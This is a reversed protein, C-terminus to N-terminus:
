FGRGRGGGRGGGAGRGRGGGGGAEAGDEFRRKFGRGTGKAAGERTAQKQESERQRYSNIKDWRRKQNDAFQQEDDGASFGGPRNAQLDPLETAVSFKVGKWTEAKIVQDVMAQPVDFIASYGDCALQMAKAATAVEDSVNKRLLYWAKSTSEIVQESKLQIAVCGLYCTLLSRHKIQATYGTMAALCASLLFVPSGREALMEEAVKAFADVNDQHIHDVQRVADRAAQAVVESPQPPGRRKLTIGKKRQLMRLLYEENRTYFVCCTGSRGGRATRGSRHVYTDLDAPPRCMVVLDVNPVDLGRAAVDTAILLRIKGSRFNEMTVERANQPIDGHLQGAGM